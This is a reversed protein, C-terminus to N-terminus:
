DQLLEKASELAFSSPNAGAIMKALEQVREEPALLKIKSITKESSNDKYVFFHCEGKAAVQPLHTICIVQHKQAIDKMMRVMQLAVEGSIGTDIEDFILTPMAMKDAMLYKIAFLLRSFEGGSAVKKLLGFDSGKNTSILFQITDKGNSFFTDSFTLEINFQVNPMGLQSLISILMKTLSPLSNKRNLHINKALDILITQEKQIQNELELISKELTELSSVKGNLEQQIQLLEGVTIVQHKKQLTYILQLKQTIFALREPDNDVSDSFRNVENVIDKMGRLSQITKINKIFNAILNATVSVLTAAGDELKLGRFQAINFDTIDLSKKKDHYSYHNLFDEQMLSNVEGKESIKGERDFELDKSNIRIWQDLLCNGPGIDNSHIISNEFYSGNAIGGINIIVGNNILNLHKLIQGHYLTVLPAGQGKNKIDNDRFNFIVKTKLLQAMLEPNGLQFTFGQEPKHILTHGHYGILDLKTLPNKEILDVINLQEM